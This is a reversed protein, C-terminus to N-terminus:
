SIKAVIDKGSKSQKRCFIDSQDIKIWTKCPQKESEVAVFCVYLIHIFLGSQVVSISLM